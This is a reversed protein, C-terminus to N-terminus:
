LGYALKFLCTKLKSKFTSVTDASRIDLYLTGSSRRMFPTPDIAM